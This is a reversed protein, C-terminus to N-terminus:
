NHRFTFIAHDNSDMDEVIIESLKERGQNLVKSQFQHPIKKAEKSKSLVLKGLTGTMIGRPQIKLLINNIAEGKMWPEIILLRVGLGLSALIFAYLDATPSEFLLLADGKKYGNDLLYKQATLSKEYLENFSTAKQLSHLGKFFIVAPKDSKVHASRLYNELCNM